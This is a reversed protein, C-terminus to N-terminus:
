FSTNLHEQNKKTEINQSVTTCSLNSDKQGLKSTIVDPCPALIEPNRSFLKMFSYRVEFNRKSPIKMKRDGNTCSIRTQVRKTLLNQTSSTVLNLWFQLMKHSRNWLPIIWRSTGKVKSKGRETFNTCSIDIQVKKVWKQTSSTVVPLSYKAEFKGKSNVKMKKDGNTCSFVIKHWKKGFTQAWVGWKLTRVFISKSREIVRLIHYVFHNNKVWNPSLLTVFSVNWFTSSDVLVNSKKFICFAPLTSSEITTQGCYIAKLSNQLVKSLSTMLSSENQM